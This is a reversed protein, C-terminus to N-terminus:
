EKSHIEEYEVDNTKKSTPSQAPIGCGQAGCGMNLLAMVLIVLGLIGMLIDYSLIAQYLAYGGVVLRIIRMFGWNSTLNALM